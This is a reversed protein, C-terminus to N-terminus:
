CRRPSRASSARRSSAVGCVRTSRAPWTRRTAVRSITGPSQITSPSPSRTAASATSRWAWDSVTSSDRSVPSDTGTRLRGESAASAAAAAPGGPPSSRGCTYAPVRTVVPWPRASTLAVPPPVCTPRMPADSAAISGAAVGNCRLRRWSTRSNPVSASAPLPSSTSHCPSRPPSQTCPRSAPMANPMAMSGSSNGIASVTNRASPLQRSARM